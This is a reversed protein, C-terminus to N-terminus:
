MLRDLQSRGFYPAFRPSEARAKLSPLSGRYPSRLERTVRDLKPPCPEGPIGCRNFAPVRRFLQRILKSWQAIRVVNIKAAPMPHKLAGLRREVGLPQSASFARIQIQMAVLFLCLWLFCHSQNALPLSV